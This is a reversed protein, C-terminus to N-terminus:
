LSKLSQIYSNQIQYTDIQFSKCLDSMISIYRYVYIYVDMHILTRYKGANTQFSGSTFITILITGYTERVLFDSFVFYLSKM